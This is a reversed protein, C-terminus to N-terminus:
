SIIRIRVWSLLNRGHTRIAIFSNYHLFHLMHFQYCFIMFNEKIKLLSRNSRAPRFKCIVFYIISEV